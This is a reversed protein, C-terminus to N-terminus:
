KNGANSHDFSTMFGGAAGSVSSIPRPKVKSVVKKTTTKGAGNAGILTVIEGEQVEFSINHLAHITGYYVDLNDIKLM